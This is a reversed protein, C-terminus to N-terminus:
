KNATIDIGLYKESVAKLEGSARLEAIAKNIAELYKENGEKRAPVAIPTAEKTVDVIKINADPHEALYEAISIDANLTADARGQLVMDITESLLDVNECKAGYSEGLLMYTSNFSNATTKGKLDEFSKIDENDGRVVLATRIYGYPESFDYKEKRDDSIEVCNYVADYRGTELGVFLGDWEGEVFEVEVGLKKAVLQAVEVDFGVLKDDADHYTWPAWAGEMAVVYKNKKQISELQDGGKKGCGALVATVFLLMIVAILSQKKM